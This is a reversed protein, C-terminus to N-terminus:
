DARSVENPLDNSNVRASALSTDLGAPFGNYPRDALGVIGELDKEPAAMRPPSPPFPGTGIPEPDNRSLPPRASPTTLPATWRSSEVEMSTSTIRVNGNVKFIRIIRGVFAWANM